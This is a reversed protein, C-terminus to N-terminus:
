SIPIPYVAPSQPGAFPHFQGPCPVPYEYNFRSYKYASAKPSWWGSRTIYIEYNISDVTSEVLNGDIPFYEKLIGSPDSADGLKAVALADLYGQHITVNQKPPDLPGLSSNYIQSFTPLNCIGRRSRPWANKFTTSGGLFKEPKIRPRYTIDSKEEVAYMATWATIQWTLTRMESRKGIVAFQQRFSDIMNTYEENVMLANPVNLIFTALEKNYNNQGEINNDYHGYYDADFTGSIPAAVERCIQMSSNGTISVFPVKLRNEVNETLLWSFGALAGTIFIFNMINLFRPSPTKEKLLFDWKMKIASPWENFFNVLRSMISM